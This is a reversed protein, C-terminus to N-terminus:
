GRRVAKSGRLMGILFAKAVAHSRNSCGLKHVAGRGADKITRVSWNLRAATEADSLGQAVFALVKLERPTLGTRIGPALEVNAAQLASGVMSSVIM